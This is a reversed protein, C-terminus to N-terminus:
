EAPLSARWEAARAFLAPSEREDALAAYIVERVQQKKSDQALHQLYRRTNEPGRSLRVALILAAKALSEDAPPSLAVALGYLLWANTSAPAFYPLFKGIEAVAHDYGLHYNALVYAVHHEANTPDAEVAARAQWYADEYNETKMSSSAALSYWRAAAADPEVAFKRAAYLEQLDTAVSDNRTALSLLVHKMAESQTQAQALLGEIRHESARGEVYDKPPLAALRALADAPMVLESAIFGAKGDQTTAELFGDQERVVQLLEGRPLTAILKAKSSPAVRLNANMAAVANTPSFTPQVSISQPEARAPSSTNHKLADASSRDTENGRNAIAVILAIGGVTAWLLGHSGAPKPPTGPNTEQHASRSQSKTPGSGAHDDTKSRSRSTATSEAKEEAAAPSGDEEGSFRATVMEMYREFARRREPPSLDPQNKLILMVLRVLPEQYLEALPLGLIDKVGVQDRRMRKYAAEVSADAEGAEPSTGRALIKAIRSIAEPSAM